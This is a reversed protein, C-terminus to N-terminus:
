RLIPWSTSRAFYVDINAYKACYEYTKINVNKKRISIIMVNVHKIM